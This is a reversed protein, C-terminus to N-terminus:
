PLPLVELDFQKDGTIRLVVLQTDDLKDMQTVGNLADIMIVKEAPDKGPIKIPAKENVNETEDLISREFRAAWYPSPGMPKRDHHMRFTNTLIYEKGDKEYAIMDLPRNGSGIELMSIGKVKAGEEVADLPYKVVPTCAFAGVVYSKEAERIPLLVSMPAKTEWKHHSVHYTEASAIKAQAEHDLPTPITFIKSAFEEKATGAAVVRDDAWAVDTIKGIPAAASSPLKLTVYDVDELPFLDIKGEGSITVILSSKDDLKRIALYAKGSAPNAALDVIEIGDAAAGVRAAVQAGIGALKAPLTPQKTTDKTMVGVVQGATGDGILLLGQPGFSIVDISKIPPNGHTTKRVPSEAAALTVSAMLGWACMALPIRRDM